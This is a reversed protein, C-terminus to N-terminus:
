FIIVNLKSKEIIYLVNQIQHFFPLFLDTEYSSNVGQLVALLRELGMGTDVFHNPLKHLQGNENRNM